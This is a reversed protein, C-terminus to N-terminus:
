CIDIEEIKCKGEEVMRLVEGHMIGHVYCEGVVEYASGSKRLVLPTDCGMLVAIVDGQQTSGPVLGLYGKMTTVLRRWALVNMAWSATERQVDNADWIYHLRHKERSAYKKPETTGAYISREKNSLFNDLSTDFLLFSANRLFFDRLGLYNTRAYAIRGKWLEPTLIWDYEDPANAGSLTCNTVLTRWFADATANENGYISPTPVGNHPYSRDTEFRHFASLSNMTDLLVAQTQLIATLNTSLFRPSANFHGSARCNGVLPAVGPGPCTWCPAWSPLSHDCNATNPNGMRKFFLGFLSDSVFYEQFDLTPAPTERFDTLVGFHPLRMEGIRRNVYRLVNLSNSNRVLDRTFDVFVTTPTEMYNPIVDVANAISSLGLMGFVRDREDTVEATRSLFLATKWDSGQM